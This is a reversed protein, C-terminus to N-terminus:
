RTIRYVRLYVSGPNIHVTEENLKNLQPLLKFYIIESMFKLMYNIRTADVIEGSFKIPNDVNYSSRACVLLICLRPIQINSTQAELTYFHGMTSELVDALM